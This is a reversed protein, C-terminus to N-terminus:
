IGTFFLYGLVIIMTTDKEDGTLLLFLLGILLLDDKALGGLVSSSQKEDKRLEKGIEKKVSLASASVGGGAEVAKAAKRIQEARKEYDNLYQKYM